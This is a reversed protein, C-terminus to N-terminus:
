RGEVVGDGGQVRGPPAGALRDDANTRLARHEPRRRRRDARYIRSLRGIEGDPENSLRTGQGRGESFVSVVFCGGPLVSMCLSATAVSASKAVMADAWACITVLYEPM